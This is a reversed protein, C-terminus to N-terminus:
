KNAINDNSDSDNNSPNELADNTRGKRVYQIQHIPTDIDNNTYINNEDDSCEAAVSASNNVNSIRASGHVDDNQTDCVPTPIIGFSEDNVSCSTTADNAMTFREAFRICYKRINGPTKYEPHTMESYQPWLEAAKARM